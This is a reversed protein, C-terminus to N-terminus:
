TKFGATMTGAPTKTPFLGFFNEAKLIGTYQKDGEPRPIRVVTWNRALSHSRLVALHFPYCLPLQLEALFQGLFLASKTHNSDECDIRL